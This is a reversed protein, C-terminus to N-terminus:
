TINPWLEDLAFPASGNYRVRLQRRRTTGLGRAVGRKIGPEPMQITRLGKFTAGNDDSWDLLLNGASPGMPSVADVSGLTHKDIQSGIPPFTVGVSMNVGAETGVSGDLRGIVGNDLGMLVMNAPEYQLASRARHYGLGPSERYNWLGLSNTLEVTWNGRSTLVYFMDGGYSYACGALTSRPVNMIARDLWAPSIPQGQQGEFGWVRGDTCVAWARGQCAALTARADTSLGVELLSNPYASYPFDTSAASDYWQEMTGTGFVWLVRGLALLDLIADPRAEATAFANADVTQPALSASVYMRDSRPSSIPFGAWFTRSDAIAVTSPSDDPMTVPAVSSQTAIYAGASAIALATRDEAARIIDGPSVQGVAVAGGTHVDRFVMGDAHVSWSTGLARGLAVCAATSPRCLQVLGPAGVVRTAAPKGEVQQQRLVARCNVLRSGQPDDKFSPSAFSAVVNLPQGPM